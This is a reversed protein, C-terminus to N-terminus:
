VHEGTQEAPNFLFVREGEKFPAERTDKDYAMKQRKQAQGVCQRALGWAQSMKAYLDTGYVKLNSVIQTKKPSLMDPM